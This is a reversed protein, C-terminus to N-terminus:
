ADQLFWRGADVLSTGRICKAEADLQVESIGISWSDLNPTTTTRAPAMYQWLAITTPAEDCGDGDIVRVSMEVQEGLSADRRIAGWPVNVQDIDTISLM